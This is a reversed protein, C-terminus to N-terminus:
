SARTYERVSRSGPIVGDSVYAEHNDDIHKLSYLYNVMMGASQAFAKESTDALWNIRELRAGNSLHFHAVPDLARRDKKENLLYGAMLRLLIKELTDRVYADVHWRTDLLEMLTHCANEATGLPAIDLVEKATFLSLYGGRLRPDLWKRFGPVPSLTVFTKM